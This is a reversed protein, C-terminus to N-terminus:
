AVASLPFSLFFPLLCNSPASSPLCISPLLPLSLADEGLAAGASDVKAGGQDQPKLGLRPYGAESDDGIQLHGEDQLSPRFPLYTM